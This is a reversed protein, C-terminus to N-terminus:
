ILVYQEIMNYHKQYVFNLAADDNNRMLSILEDESTGTNLEVTKNLKM